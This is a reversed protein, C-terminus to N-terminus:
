EEHRRTLNEEQANSVHSYAACGFVKLNSIDPKHGYWKATRNRLYAATSVAEAWFRNPLNSHSLMARASEVLTRNLREAVGNQQPSHPVTLQHEIGNSALYAQFEKSLYEGGNDTRLKMIGEDDNGSNRLCKQNTSSSISLSVDQITTLFYRSGGISEAQFPGCVDSHILELKRKSQKHTLPKRQMKGEVCGECFSLESTTSLKIGSALNRDVLTNLQQKNLHGLRQHWLDVEPLNETVVSVNEKDTLVECKLQYLKGTLSGMGQLSGKPGKIWCRVQSFKVTNGKKAAARVSFLNCALKPVHLVDYYM